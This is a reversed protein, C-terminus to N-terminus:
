PKDSKMKRCVVVIYRYENKRSVKELEPSGREPAYLGPMIRRMIGHFFPVLLLRNKARQGYVELVEFFQGLVQIFEESVYERVHFPNDTRADFTRRPSTLKRNPSSIVLLGGPKLVRRLGTFAGEQSEVHEITEFCTIVDFSDEPLGTDMMNGIKFELGEEKYKARALGIAENSVDMGIVREAGGSCLIGSGYGTGCAIDLVHRGKVYGLAFEYRAVHDSWIRQPTGGEVVREGTFM